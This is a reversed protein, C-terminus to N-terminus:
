PRKPADSIVRALGRRDAVGLKRYVAHLQNRVTAPSVGLQRAIEKNQLGAAALVAVRQEASSLLAPLRDPAQIALCLLGGHRTARIWVAAGRYAGDRDRALAAMLAPPLLPPTWQPWERQLMAVAGPEFFQLCGQFDTLAVMHDGPEALSALMLRRNIARAQLVHPFLADAEAADSAVYGQVGAPQWLAIATASSAGTSPSVYALAHATDYRHLYAKVDTPLRMGLLDAFVSTGRQAWARQLVVDRSLLQESEDLTEHGIVDRRALFREIPADHLHLAVTQLGAGPDHDFGAIAASDFAIVRRIGDLVFRDLDAASADHAHHYIDLLLKSRSDMAADTFDAIHQQRPPRIAASSCWDAVIAVVVHGEM